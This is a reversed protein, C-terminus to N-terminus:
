GGASARDWRRTGVVVAQPGGKIVYSLRNPSELRWITTLANTPSSVLREDIVVTHLGRFVATARRVITTADRPPWQAPLVFRLRQTRQGPRTITTVVKTPRGNLPLQTRYCGEGCVTAFSSRSGGTTTLEFALKTGAPGFGDQGLVTATITIRSGTQRLALGVALDGAEQALVLPTNAPRPAGLTGTIGFPTARKQPRSGGYRFTRYIRHGPDLILERTLRNKGDIWMRYWISSGPVAFSVERVGDHQAIQRVDVGGGGFVESQMFQKGTLTYGSPSTSSRPGSVVQETLRLSPLARMVRVVRTLLATRQPPIPATVTFTPDGGKWLSSSIHANIRTRGPLLRYRITFCGTGCPRPFLDLARGSPPVADASLKLEGSPESGPPLITFRLERPTAALAVVLQGALEALQVAPGQLPPPGLQPLAAATAERKPPAANVLVSAAALVGVVALTETATARRLLQLRPHPNDRLARLRSVLALLLAISVFGAKILLTRGYSTATLDGVRRFEPLATLVGTALILLVIPLALRSYRRVGALVAADDRVHAAVLVLHALAGVWLAAAVLHVLDAPLAWWDGSTGSHGRAATAVAAGALPVAALLRARPILVTAAAVLLAALAALTLAGPRTLVVDRLAHTSLGKGFGGGRRAGATLLLLWLEGVAAVAIATLAPAQPIRIGSTSRWFLRESVIGGLAVAFGLFFLWSAVVDSLPTTGSASSSLAPLAGGSGVAFAFEGLSIHGDDSLVRWQVVYVGCLRPPLPQRIESAKAQPASLQLEQGGLRRISVQESKGVFQESFFMTLAAPSRALRAGAQPDSQILFSHAQAAAPLLAAVVVGVGVLITIRRHLPQRPSV